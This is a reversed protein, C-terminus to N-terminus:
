KLKEELEKRLQDGRFEGKFFDIKAAISLKDALMRAAKGKEAQKAKAVLPHNIVVGFKPPRAGTKIHRFLAKEAGLLQMTSAPFLALRELSGAISLLKAGIMAGAIALMNPMNEKMAEEVYKAQRERLAALDTIQKALEMVPAIDRSRMEAGMTQSENLGVEALLEKRTKRQILEAFKEHSEISKSFEPNYLEYWERLRKALTNIVKDIEDINNMAQVILYDPKLSEAIKRKTTVLLTDRMLKLYKPKSLEELVWQPPNAGIKEAEKHKDLFASDAAGLREEALKRDRFVFTGICNTYISEAM